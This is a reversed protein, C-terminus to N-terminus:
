LSSLPVESENKQLHAFQRKDLRTCIVHYTKACKDCEISEEEEKVEMKCQGCLIAKNKVSRRSTTPM